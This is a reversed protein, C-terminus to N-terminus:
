AKGREGDFDEAEHHEYVDQLGITDACGLHWGLGFV